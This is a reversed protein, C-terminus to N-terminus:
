TVKQGGMEYKKLKDDWKELSIGYVKHRKCRKEYKANQVLDLVRSVPYERLRRHRQEITMQVHVKNPYKRKANKIQQKKRAEGNTWYVVTALSVDFVVAIEECFTGDKRLKRMQNVIYQNVKYRQDLEIPISM